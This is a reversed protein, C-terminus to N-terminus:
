GQEVVAEVFASPPVVDGVEYWKVQVTQHGLGVEICHGDEDRTYAHRGPAGTPGLIRRLNWEGPATGAVVVAYTPQGPFYLSNGFVDQAIFDPAAGKTCAPDEYHIDRSDGVIG